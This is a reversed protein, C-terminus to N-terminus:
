ARTSRARAAEGLRTLGALTDPVVLLPGSGIQRTTMAAVAGKAFAAEVFDHGDFQDGIIAVFLDGAEVARSDISVNRATWDGSPTLGLAAAAEAATWLASM